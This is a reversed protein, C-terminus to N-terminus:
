AVLNQIVELSLSELNPVTLDAHDFNHKKTFENPVAIVKIGASNAAKVGTPADEIVVCENTSVNLQRAAAIFIDPAPKGNKVQDGSVLADFKDLLNLQTLVLKIHKLPSSSAIAIKIGKERLLELLPILGPMPKIGASLLDEYAAEKQEYLSEVEPELKHLKKLRHWNERANIGVEQVIGHENYIPTVEHKTLVHEFSKSQLGETDVIVGDMDFIVATLM